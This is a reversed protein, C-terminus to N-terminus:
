KAENPKYTLDNKRSFLSASRLLFVGSIGAGTYPDVLFLYLIFIQESSKVVNM